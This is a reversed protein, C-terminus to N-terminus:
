HGVDRWKQREMLKSITSFDMGVEHLLLIEMLRGLKLSLSSLLQRQVAGRHMLDNRASAVEYAFSKSDKIYLTAAERGLDVLERVRKRLPIENSYLLKEKLWGRFHDPCSNLIVAIRGEHEKLPVEVGSFRHRHYVEATMAFNLFRSELFAQPRRLNAFYLNHVARMTDASELWSCFARAPSTGLDDFRFLLEVWSKVSRETPLYAPAFHIDVTIQRNAPKARLCGTVTTYSALARGALSLLNQFDSMRTLYCELASVKDSKLRLSAKQAVTVETTPNKLNPGELGFWLSYEFTRDRGLAIEPPRRISIDCGEISLQSIEIGSVGLWLGLSEYGTYLESFEIPEDAEFHVGVLM